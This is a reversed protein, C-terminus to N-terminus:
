IIIEQEDYGTALTMGYSPYPNSTTSCHGFPRGECGFHVRLFSNKGVQPNWNFQDSRASGKSKKVTRGVWREVDKVTIPSRIVGDGLPDYLRCEAM